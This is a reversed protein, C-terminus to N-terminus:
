SELALRDMSKRALQLSTIVHNEGPVGKGVDHLLLALYLLEPRELEELLRGYRQDWESTAQRARHLCEIALFSHEDVTFRHYFDRVVLCDILKLEPLLITLLGLSHMARLADAAHPEVLVSQLYRWSDPGSPPNEALAPLVQQIRTETSLAPKLGHHAAFNFIRFLLERDRVASTQQLYILSDVVS